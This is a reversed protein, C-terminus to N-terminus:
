SRPVMHSSNSRCRPAPPRSVIARPMPRHAPSPTGCNPSAAPRAFPSTVAVDRDSHNFVFYIEADALRRHIYRLEGGAPAAPLMVDPALGIEQARARVFSDPPHAAAGDWLGRALAAYQGRTEYDCVGAPAVPTLASSRCEPAPSTALLKRLAPLDAAWNEPLMLVRYAPGTPLTLAGDRWTMAGLHHPYVIDFDYGAPTTVMGGPFAYGHDETHLFAIDAVTRGQQLLSQGRAVYDIWAGALPWWTNLRGFHTGYRGLGFGPGDDTPRHVYHHLMFRNIGATWAYDGPDKLTAPTALRRGDEPKATFAEAGVLRRGLVNAVSAAAM